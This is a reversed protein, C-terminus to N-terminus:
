EKSLVKAGTALWASSSGTNDYNFLSQTNGGQLFSKIQSYSTAGTNIWITAEYTKVVGMTVVNYQIYFQDYTNTSVYSSNQSYISNNMDAAYGFSQVGTTTQAITAGSPDVNSATIIPYGASATVALTGAGINVSTTLQFGKLGKLINSLGTAVSGKAPTGTLPTTYQIQANLYQNPVALGPILQSISFYYTTNAALPSPETYTIVADVEAVSTTYKASIVESGQPLYLISVPAASGDVLSVVGKTVYLGYYLASAIGPFVGSNNNSTNLFIGQPTINNISVLAM